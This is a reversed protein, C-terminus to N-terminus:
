DQAQLEKELEKFIDNGWHPELEDKLKFDAFRQGAEEVIPAAKKKGGGFLVPTHYVVLAKMLYARPNASDAKIAKDSYNRSDPGLSMGRSSKANIRASLWYAMLTLTETNDPQLALAKKVYPEAKETSPDAEGDPARFSSQTYAWGTYYQLLWEEPHAAALNGIKEAGQQWITFDTTKDLQALEEKLSQEWNTQGQVVFGTTLLALLFTTFARM